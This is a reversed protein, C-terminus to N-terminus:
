SAFAFHFPILFLLIFLLTVDTGDLEIFIIKLDVAILRFNINESPRAHMACSYYAFPRPFTYINLALLTVSISAEGSRQFSRRRQELWLYEFMPSYLLSTPSIGLPVPRTGNLRENALSKEIVIRRARSSGSFM